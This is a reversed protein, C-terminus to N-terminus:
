WARHARGGEGHGIPEAEREVGKGWTWVWLVREFM